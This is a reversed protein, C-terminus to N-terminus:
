SIASMGLYPMDAGGATMSSSTTIAGGPAGEIHPTGLPFLCPFLAGANSAYISRTSCKAATTALNWM